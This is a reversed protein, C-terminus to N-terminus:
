GAPQWKQWKGRGKPEWTAVTFASMAAMGGLAKIAKRDQRYVTLLM